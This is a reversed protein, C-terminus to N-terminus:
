FEYILSPQHHLYDSSTLSCNVGEVEGQPINDWEQQKHFHGYTCTIVPYKLILDFFETQTGQTTFPPFHMLLHIGREPKLEMANDLSQKLLDYEKAFPKHDLNDFSDDNPALWGKSGCIVMQEIRTARGYLFIMDLPLNASGLLDKKWWIDHNGPVIVKKVGPLKSLIQLTKLGREKRTAWSIDGGLLILDKAGISQGWNHVIREIHNVWIKGYPAMRNVSSDPYHIDSIAWIKM